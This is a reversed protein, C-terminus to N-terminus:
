WQNCVASDILVRTLPEILNYPTDLEFGAVDFPPLADRDRELGRGASVIV